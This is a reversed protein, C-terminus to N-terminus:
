RLAPLAQSFRYWRVTIFCWCILFHLQLLRFLESKKFIFNNESLFVPNYMIQMIIKYLGNFLSFWYLIDTARLIIKKQLFVLSGLVMHCKIKETKSNNKCIVGYYKYITNLNFLWNVFLECKKCCKHDVYIENKKM